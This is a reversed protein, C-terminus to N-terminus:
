VIVFVNVYRKVGNEIYSTRYFGNLRDNLQGIFSISLRYFKGVKLPYNKIGIILLQRTKDEHYSQVGIRKSEIVDHLKNHFVSSYFTEFEM